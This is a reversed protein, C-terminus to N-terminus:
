IILAPAATPCAPLVMMKDQALCLVDKCHVLKLIHQFCTVRIAGYMHGPQTMRSRVEDDSSDDEEDPSTSLTPCSLGDGPGRRNPGVQERRHLGSLPVM